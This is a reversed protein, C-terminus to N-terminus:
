AVVGAPLESAVPPMPVLSIAGTKRVPHNAAGAGLLYVTDPMPLNWRLACRSIEDVMDAVEVPRVGSFLSVAAVSGSACAAVVNTQRGLHVIWARRLRMRRHQANWSSTFETTVGTDLLKCARAASAVVSIAQAPIACALFPRTACWDADLAWDAPTDGYLGDFRLRAASQLDSVRRANSPPDVVFYRACENRVITRLRAKPSAHERLVDAIVGHFSSTALAPTGSSPDVLGASQAAVVRWAKPTGEFVHLELSERGLVLRLSERSFLSM